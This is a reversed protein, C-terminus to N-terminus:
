LGSTAPEFGTGAVLYFPERLCSRSGNENPKHVHKHVNASRIAGKPGTAETWKIGQSTSTPWHAGTCSAARKAPYGFKLQGDDHGRRCFPPKPSVTTSSSATEARQPTVATASPSIKVTVAVTASGGHGDAVTVTFTDAKDAPTADASAHPALRATPHDGSATTLASPAQSHVAPRSM